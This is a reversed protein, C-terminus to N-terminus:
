DPTAVEFATMVGAFVNVNANVLLVDAGINTLVGIIIGVLADMLLDGAMDSVIILM